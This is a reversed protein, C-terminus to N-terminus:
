RSLSDKMQSVHWEAKEKTLWYSEEKWFPFWWRRIEVVYASITYHCVKVYRVRFEM